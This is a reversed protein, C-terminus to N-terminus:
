PVRNRVAVVSEFVNRIVGDGGVTGGSYALSQEYDGRVVNDDLGALLLSYRVSLVRSWDTVNNATVYSNLNRNGTTDVGFELQLNEVGEVLEIPTGAGVSNKILIWLSDIARGSPTTRGSPAVYYTISEYAMVEADSGYLKSLKNNTNGGSSHAITAKKDNHNNSGSVSVANFVDAHVCDSIILTDNPKFGHKNELIQINANSPSLNGTLRVSDGSARRVEVYDTGPKAGVPNGAAANNVGLLFTSSDFNMFDSPPEAIVNVAVRDLNGCGMYGAMRLDRALFESAFRGNEQIRAMSEQMRYVNKSTIFVQMVAGSIILGLVLAVMLEVLSIGTQNRRTRFGYIKM